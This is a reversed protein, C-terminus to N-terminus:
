SLQLLLLEFEGLLEFGAVDGVPGTEIFEDVALYGIASVVRPDEIHWDQADLVPHSQRGGGIGCRRGPLREPRDTRAATTVNAKSSTPHELSPSSDLLLSSDESSDEESATAPM